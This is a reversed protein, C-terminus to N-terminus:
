SEPFLRKNLEPLLQGVFETCAREALEDDRTVEQVVYLKYLASSGAFAVRPSQPAQWGRGCNWCWFVRLDTFSTTDPKSFKAAWMEAGTDSAGDVHGRRKDVGGVAQYGSGRYCIDPTHVCLPGAPGCALLVSVAAGNKRNKYSRRIYNTFGAQEAERASLPRAAEGQWEGFTMPVDDLRVAARELDPAPGWRHTLVGYVYGDLALLAAIGLVSLARTM